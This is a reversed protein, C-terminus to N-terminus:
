VGVPTLSRRASDWVAAMHELSDGGLRLAVDLSAGSGQHSLLVAAEEMTEDPVLTSLVGVVQSGLHLEGGSGIARGLWEGAGGHSGLKHVDVAVAVSGAASHGGYVERLAEINKDLIETNLDRLSGVDLPDMTSILQGTTVAKMLYNCLVETHSPGNVLSYARYILDRKLLAGLAVWSDVGHELDMEWRKCVTCELMDKLDDLTVVVEENRGEAVEMCGDPAHVRTGQELHVVRVRITSRRARGTFREDKIVKLIDALNAM